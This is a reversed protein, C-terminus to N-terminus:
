STHVSGAVVAMAAMVMMASPVTVVVAAKAVGAM